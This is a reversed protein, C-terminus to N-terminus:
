RGYIIWICVLGWLVISILLPRDAFLLATPDSHEEENMLHVYRFLGYVVFPVTYVLRDTGFHEIAYDSVTYTSYTLVVMGILIVLMQDIARSTYGDLAVRHDAANHMLMKLEGRRKGLGLLLSLFFTMLLIWRSAAVTSVDAGALVRLVFGTAISFVDLLAIHKTVFSYLLNVGAYLLLWFGVGRSLSFAGVLGLSGLLLAILIAQWRSVRGAAIPRMCKHPHLRDTQADAIDNCVYVASATLCFYGFLFLGELLIDTQSLKGAFLIPMFVFGNKIWQKPRVLQFVLWLGEIFRQSRTKQITELSSVM